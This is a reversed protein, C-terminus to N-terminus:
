SFQYIFYVVETIQSMKIIIFKYYLNSCKCSLVLQRNHLLQSKKAYIPRPKEKCNSYEAKKILWTPFTDRLLTTTFKSVERKVTKTKM